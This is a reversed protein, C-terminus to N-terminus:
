QKVKCDGKGWGSCFRQRRFEMVKFISGCCLGSGLCLHHGRYTSTNFTREGGLSAALLVLRCTLLGLGGVSPAWPLSPPRPLYLHQVHARRRAIRGALLVLRCTLLGQGGWRRLGLCPHHGRYTPTNFTREGGLSAALLVLRCTLLGLRPLESTQYPGVPHAESPTLYSM